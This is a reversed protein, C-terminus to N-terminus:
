TIASRVGELFHDWSHDRKVAAIGNKSLRNWLALDEHLEICRQAFLEPSDAVLLEKQDTWQLQNALLSTAVVPLGRSAADSVKLPIGAAFRTPAIFVRARNYFENLDPAMGIIRIGDDESDLAAVRESNNIGVVTLDLSINARILPLIEQAFWLISDENPSNEEHIAGVFLLGSRDTPPKQTPRPALTHGVVSCHLGSGRSLLKAETDNVAILRVAGRTLNVEESILAKADAEALPTGQIEAKLITRNAVVAEADYVIEASRISPEDMVEQFHRMNHPRSVVIVDYFNPRQQLFERLNEMGHGIMVETERPIDSYVSPWESPSSEFPYLTVFCDLEHLARILNAARPFGSGLYEHPVRDDILLVKKSCRPLSRAVLANEM